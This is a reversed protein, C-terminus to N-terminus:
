EDLPEMSPPFLAPEEKLLRLNSLRIHVPHFSERIRLIATGMNRIHNPNGHLVIKTQGSFQGSPTSSREFLQFDLLWTVPLHPHVASTVCFDEPAYVPTGKERFLLQFPQDHEEQLVMDIALFRYDAFDDCPFRIGGGSACTRMDLYEANQMIIEAGFVGVHRLDIKKVVEAGKRDHRSPTQMM